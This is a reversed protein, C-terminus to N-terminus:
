TGIRDLATEYLKLQGLLAGCRAWLLSKQLPTRAKGDGELGKESVPSCPQSLEGQTLAPDFVPSSSPSLVVAM